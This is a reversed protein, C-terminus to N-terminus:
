VQNEKQNKYKNILDKPFPYDYVDFLSMEAYPSNADIDFLYKITYTDMFKTYNYGYNAVFLTFYDLNYKLNCVLEGIIDVDAVVLATISYKEITDILGQVTGDYYINNAWLENEKLKENEFLTYIKHVFRQKSLTDLMEYLPTRPSSNYYKVINDDIFERVTESDINHLEALDKIKRHTVLYIIEVLPKVNKPDIAHEIELEVMVDVIRLTNIPLVLINESRMMNSEHKLRKPNVGFVNLSMDSVKVTPLDNKTTIASENNKDM